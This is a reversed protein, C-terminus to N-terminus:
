DDSEGEMLRLLAPWRTELKRATLCEACLPIDERRHIRVGAMTGCRGTYEPWAEPDDITDSDWCNVGAYGRKAAVVKAYTTAFQSQGLDRPNVSQYKEFVEEIKAAIPGTVHLRASDGKIFHNTDAIDRDLLQALLKQSFGEAVLAQLRRRPGTSHVWGMDATTFKANMVMNYTVRRTTPIPRYKADYGHYHHQVTCLGVGSRAAITKMLVGRVDILYRLRAQMPAADVMSPIGKARLLARRAEARKYASDGM